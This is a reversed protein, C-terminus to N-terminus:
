LGTGKESKTRRQLTKGLSPPEGGDLGLSMEQQKVMVRGSVSGRPFPVLRGTLWIDTLAQSRCRSASYKQSLRESGQVRVLM